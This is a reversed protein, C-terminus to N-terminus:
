AWPESMRVIRNVYSRQWDQREAIWAEAASRSPFPGIIMPFDSYRDKPNLYLVAWKDRKM